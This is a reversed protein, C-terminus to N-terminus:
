FEIMNNDRDEVWIAYRPFAAKMGQVAPRAEEPSAFLFSGKQSTLIGPDVWVIRFQNQYTQEM